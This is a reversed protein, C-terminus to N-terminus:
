KKKKIFVDSFTNAMTECWIETMERSTIQNLGTIFTAAHVCEHFYTVLTDDDSMDKQVWILRRSYNMGGVASVGTEKLLEEPTAMKVTFTRGLITVKKPLKKM